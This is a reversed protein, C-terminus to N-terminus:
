ANPLPCGQERLLPRGQHAATFRRGVAADVRLLPLLGDTVMLTEVQEPRGDVIVQAGNNAWLGVDELIRTDARYTLYTAPAQNLIEFGLGPAEHWMAVLSEPDDFPLPELLVGNVVSFIAANAGIGIALTMVATVTFVPARLLRRAAFGLQRMIPAM